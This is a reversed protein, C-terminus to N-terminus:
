NSRGSQASLLVATCSHVALKGCVRCDSWQTLAAALQTYETQEPSCAYNNLMLLM